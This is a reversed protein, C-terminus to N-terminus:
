TRGYLVQPNVLIDIVQNTSGAELAMGIIGAQIVGATTVTADTTAISTQTLSGLGGSSGIHDASVIEGVGVSSNCVAASVGNMRVVVENSAATPRTQVIGLQFLLQTTTNPLDPTFGATGAGFCVARYQATTTVDRTGANFTMDQGFNIGRNAM